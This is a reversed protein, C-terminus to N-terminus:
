IMNKSISSIRNSIGRSLLYPIAVLFSGVLGAEMPSWHKIILLQFLTDMLWSLILPKYISKLGDKWYGSSIPNSILHLFYPRKGLKADKKGDRIGLIIAILPQLIFRFKAPGHMGQLISDYYHEFLSMFVDM